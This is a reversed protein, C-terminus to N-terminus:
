KKAKIDEIRERAQETRKLINKELAELDNYDKDLVVKTQETEKKCEEEKKVKEEKDKKQKMVQRIQQEIENFDERLKKLMLNDKAIKNNEDDLATSEKGAKSEFTTKERENQNARIRERKLEDIKDVLYKQKRKNEQELLNKKNNNANIKELLM